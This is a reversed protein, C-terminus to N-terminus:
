VCFIGQHEVGCPRITTLKAETSCYCGWSKLYVLLSGRFPLSWCIFGEGWVVYSVNGQYVESSLALFKEVSSILQWLLRFQQLCPFASCNLGSLYSKPCPSTVAWCGVPFCEFEPTRRAALCNQALMSTVPSNNLLSTISLWVSTKLSNRSFHFTCMQSGFWSQRKLQM